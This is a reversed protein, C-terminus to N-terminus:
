CLCNVNDQAEVEPIAANLREQIDLCVKLEEPSLSEFVVRQSEPLRELGAKRWTDFGSDSM